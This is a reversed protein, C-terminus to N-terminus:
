VKRNHANTHCKPDVRMPTHNLGSYAQASNCWRGHSGQSGLLHEPTLPWGLFDNV